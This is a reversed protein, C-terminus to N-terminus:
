AAVPTPRAPKATGRLLRPTLDHRVDGFQLWDDGIARHGNSIRQTESHSGVQRTKLAGGALVGLRVEAAVEGPASLQIQVRQSYPAGVQLQVDPPDAARSTKWVLPAGFTSDTRNPSANERFTEQVCFM